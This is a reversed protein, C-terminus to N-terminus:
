LNQVLHKKMNCTNTCFHTAKHYKQASCLNRVMAKSDFSELLTSDGKGRLGLGGTKDDGVTLGRRLVLRTDEHNASLNTLKDYCFSTYNHNTSTTCLPSTLRSRVHMPISAFGFKSITDSLLPSPIAGVLSLNDNATKWFISPFLM